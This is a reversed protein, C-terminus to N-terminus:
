LAKKATYTLNDFCIDLYHGERQFSLLGFRNFVASALKVDSKLPLFVIQDDFTVIINGKGSNADPNYEFTWDHRGANPRIISGQESIKYAGESDAYIPRFYHGVPSPGEIIVGIFNVPPAGIHTDSNFWGILVASDVVARIMSVKGSAELHHGMILTGIDDAYYGANQM